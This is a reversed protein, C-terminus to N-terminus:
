ADKKENAPRKATLKYTKKGVVLGDGYGVGPHTNGGMCFQEDQQPPSLLPNLAAPNGVLPLELLGQLSGELSAGAVHPTLYNLARVLTALLHSRGGSFGQQLVKRVEQMVPDAERLERRVQEADAEYFGYVGTARLLGVGLRVRFTRHVKQLLAAKPETTKFIGREYAMSAIWNASFPKSRMEFILPLLKGITERDANTRLKAFRSTPQM